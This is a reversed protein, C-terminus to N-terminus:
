AARQSFSTGAESEEPAAPEAAPQRQRAGLSRIRGARGRDRARWTHMSTAASSRASGAIAARSIPACTMTAGGPILDKKGPVNPVWFSHIVDDASPSFSPDASRYTYSTPPRSAQAPAPRIPTGVVISARHGCHPTRRHSGNRCAGARRPREGLISVCTARRLSPLSWPAAHRVSRGRSRTRTPRRPRTGQPARIIAIALAGNGRHVGRPVGRADREVFRAIHAAQPGAAAIADQHITRGTGSHRRINRLVVIRRWRRISRHTVAEAGPPSPKTRNEPVRAALDDDRSPAADSPALREDLSRLRRAELDGSGLHPALPRCGTLAARSSPESIDEPKSGYIWQEDMLAPGM